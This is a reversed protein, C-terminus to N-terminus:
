QVRLDCAPNLVVYEVPLAHQCKWFTHSHEPIHLVTALIDFIQCFTDANPPFDETEVM